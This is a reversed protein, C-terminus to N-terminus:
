EATPPPAEEGETCTIEGDQIAAVVPQPDGITADAFVDIAIALPSSGAAACTFEVTALVTDGENGYATAGAVRVTTDDYAPNCVSGAFPPCDVITIVAPDYTIDATWAGLGPAPFGTVELDVSGDEGVALSASGVSLVPADPGPTAAAAEGDPSATGGSDSEEEGGNGCAVALALALSLLLVTFLRMM